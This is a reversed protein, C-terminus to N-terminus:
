LMNACYPCGDEAHDQIEPLSSWREHFQAQCLGCNPDGASPPMPNGYRSMSIHKTDLASLFLFHSLQLQVHCQSTPPSWGNYVRGHAAPNPPYVPRSVCFADPSVRAPQIGSSWPSGLRHCYHALRNNSTEFMYMSFGRLFASTQTVTHSIYLSPFRL